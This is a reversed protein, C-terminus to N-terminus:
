TTRLNEQRLQLQEVDNGASWQHQEQQHLREAESVFAGPERIIASIQRVFTGTSSTSSLSTWHGEAGFRTSVTTMPVVGDAQVAANSNDIKKEPVM